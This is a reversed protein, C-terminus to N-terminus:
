GHSSSIATWFLTLIAVEVVLVGVFTAGGRVVGAAPHAGALWSLVGAAIGVILAVVVGLALALLLFMMKTTM